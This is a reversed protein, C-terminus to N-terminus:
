GPLPSIQPPFVHTFVVRAIILMPLALLAGAAGWIWSWFIITIFVAFLHLSFRKGLLQPTLLNSELTVLLVYAIAPFLASLTEEFTMFGAITLLVAMILPGVFPVFNLIFVLVGWMIANPIGLVYLVGTMCLGLAVNILSTTGFWAALDREIETVVRLVELRNKRAMFSLTVRQKIAQRGAVFFFFAAIFILMQGLAPTAFGLVYTILSAPSAAVEVSATAQGGVDRLASEIQRWAGLPRMLFGLRTSLRASIEPIRTIWTSIPESLLIIALAASTILGFTVALSIFAPHIGLQRSRDVLPGLMMGLIVATTIPVVVAQAQYLALLATFTAIVLLSLQPSRQLIRAAKM